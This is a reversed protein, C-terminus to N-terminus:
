ERIVNEEFVSPGMPQQSLHSLEPTVIVKFSKYAVMTSLKAELDNNVEMAGINQYNTTGEPIIWVVYNRAGAFVKHAPALHKVSVVLKTNDNDGKSVKVEGSAAPVIHTGELQHKTTGCSLLAMTGILLGLGTWTIKKM